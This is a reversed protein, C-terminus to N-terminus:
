PSADSAADNAGESSGLWAALALMAATHERALSAEFEMLEAPSEESPHNFYEEMWACLESLRAAGISAAGGRLKHACRACQTRDKERLAQILDQLQGVSSARFVDILMAMGAGAGGLHEVMSQILTLDLIPRALEPMSGNTEVAPKAPEPVAREVDRSKRVLIDHLQERSYPKVLVREMGAAMCKSLTMKSTSATCGIIRPPVGDCAGGLIESCAEFGAMVPMTCDMIVVDYAERRCAQVAELGNEVNAVKCGFSRLHEGVVMRNIENDEAVLVSIGKLRSMGNMEDPPSEEVASSLKADSVVLPLRVEVQTGRGVESQISLDGEMLRVLEKTIPLGLGSGGVSGHHGDVHIQIFPTFLSDMHAAAIGIGTDEILLRMAHRGSNGKMTEDMCPELAIRIMGTNTYKVANSLLNSVIQRFRLEDIVIHAPMTGSIDFELLIKKKEMDRKFLRIISKLCAHLDVVATEMRLTGQELKAVDLVDDFLRMLSCASQYADQALSKNPLDLTGSEMMMELLGMVGHMPTRLEHSFNSIYLMKADSASQAKIKETLLTEEWRKEDTIDSITGLVGTLIDADDHLPSLLLSIWRTEGHRNIIRIVSRGSDAQRHGSAHNGIVQSKQGPRTWEEIERGIVKGEEEGCFDCGAQNIFTIKGAPDALFVIENLSDLILRHMRAQERLSKEVNDRGIAGALIAACSNLFDFYIPSIQGRFGPCLIRIIGCLRAGALLPVCIQLERNLFDNKALHSHLPMWEHNMTSYLSVGRDLQALMEPEWTFAPASPAALGAAVIPGDQGVLVLEAGRAGCLRAIDDMAADLAAAHSDHDVFRSSITHLCRNSESRYYTDSIDMTGGYMRYRNGTNELEETWWAKLHCWDSHKGLMRFELSHGEGSHLASHEIAATASRVDMPHVRAVFEDIDISRGDWDMGTMRNWGSVMHITGSERDLEWAALGAADVTKQLLRRMREQQTRGRLIEINRRRSMEANTFLEALMKVLFVQRDSWDLKKRVADFGVFGICQGHYILPVSVMTIIDQPELIERLVSGVPLSKVDPVHIAGGKLHVALWEELGDMSVGQLNEIMPQIGDACWEHTNDILRREFDYSMVYARDVLTFGGTMALARNIEQDVKELPINVFHIALHMLFNEFSESNGCDLSDMELVSGSYQVLGGEPGDMDGLSAGNGLPIDSHDILEQDM